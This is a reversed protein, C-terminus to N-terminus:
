WNQIAQITGNLTQGIGNPFGAHQMVAGDNWWNNLQVADAIRASRITITEKEIRM